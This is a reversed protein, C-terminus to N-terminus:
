FEDLCVRDIKRPNYPAYKIKSVDVTQIEM